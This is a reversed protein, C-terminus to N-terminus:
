KLKALVDGFKAYNVVVGDDLDFGIQQDAVVHLRDHYERCEDIQKGISDLEKRERTSLNAANAQMENQKNFLWEIHPLLYNTRIKETTYANMRHMYAICQFSGKKSSFLWYIPRNQYMKKHDKWFDKVFYDDLRKGLSREIFNLNDMLSEEGFTIGLWTKFRLTTNDTFETNAPMLPIIGDDDIAFRSNPVLAEYEKQGDGQNALILGPRDISYRGMMCGVAYSILQKMLVDDNWRLKDGEISIEGQQFITIESLLVNPTLEDQLGYIDIFQRNLEEENHHLEMFKDEWETKIQESLWELRGSNAKIFDLHKDNWSEMPINENESTFNYLSPTSNRKSFKVFENETFDWSTEHADWDQKSISINQQVLSDILSSQMEIIPIRAIDGNTFSMTPNFFKLYNLSVKSCLLAVLYKLNENRDIFACRSTDDFISGTSKYRVSFSNSSIKNWTLGEKFYYGTNQPRSAIRGNKGIFHKLEYGDNKWNVVYEEFSSWKRAHGGSLCPYWKFKASITDETSKFGRGINDLSIETWLRQFSLNDGTALGAKPNAYDGLLINKFNDIMKASVWYGIPCGPIKEFNSQPIAPYYIKTGQESYVMDEVEKTYDAFYFRFDHNALTKEFLLQLHKQDFEQFTREILRFYVGQASESKTNNIIASSAGFDAGFVGRSLHLLSDISRNDIIDRRLKEFTSLFMWSPPIIFGYKGHKLTLDAMHQVFVTALDAKGIEYNEKAYTSLIENMNGGGMYPPNMVLAAYNQTLTLIIQMYPLMKRIDEPLVEQQAYEATRIAIVNRTRESINFKMISGLTQADNMLLVADTLEDLVEANGGMIYESLVSRIFTREEDTNDFTKGVAEAYPIPMDLVRPMCHADSFSNDKQCAKMLLAFTALQKARTDIDIGTLNYQFIDEIAKRRNYGEEIYIQYFLDFCENLIHGSGCALDACTLDHINDFQYIADAPTPEAPEVLYQMEKKIDTYPNNDLYIRGVTNQVMYKVIWNPTFIQTAAPIEDAEFKSKQAFVEDKRESIYFQYLWGILEPSRYDEDSIYEDANLKDIFGDKALINSPLLLETYDSITGFCKHIIPNSHCYAVILVAFQEDTLADNNLLAELKQRSEENMQPFRRQRAESVLLPIRVEDSEYELVAPVLENKVMIRIAMLRNFWTYAAEEAVERYSHSQIRQYLSMWKHYFDESQVEGMFVSGGGMLEPLKTSLSGDTQFGLASLRQKVGSMLINRAESAFRKLRNTEM